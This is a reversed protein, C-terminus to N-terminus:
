FTLSISVKSPRDPLSFVIIPSEDMFPTDPPSRFRQRLAEPTLREPLVRDLHLDVSHVPVTRPDFSPLLSM